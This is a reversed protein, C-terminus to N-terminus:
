LAVGAKKLFRKVYAEEMEFYRRHDQYRKFAYIKLSQLRRPDGHLIRCNEVIKKLFLPDAHNIFSLDVKKGPFVEHLDYILDAYERHPFVPGDHLVAIDLDSHAHFKGTVASGFLLSLKLHYRSAMEALTQQQQPSIEM